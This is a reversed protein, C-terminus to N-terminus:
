FLYSLILQNMSRQHGSFLPVLMSFYLAFSFIFEVFYVPYLQICQSQHVLCSVTHEWSFQVIFQISSILYFVIQDYIESAFFLYFVVPPSAVLISALYTMNKRPSTLPIQSLVLNRLSFSRFPRIKEFLVRPFIHCALTGQLARFDMVIRHTSGSKAVTYLKM